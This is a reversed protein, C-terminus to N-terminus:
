LRVGMWRLIALALTFLYTATGWLLFPGQQARLWDLLTPMLSRDNNEFEVKMGKVVGHFNLKIRDNLVSLVRIEGRSHEFRIKEGPRLTRQLGNLEDFYLEGKLTTSKLTTNVTKCSDIKFLSLKEVFIQHFPRENSKESLILNM